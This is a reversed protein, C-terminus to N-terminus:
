SAPQKNACKSEHKELEERSDFKAGCIVCKHMQNPREIEREM